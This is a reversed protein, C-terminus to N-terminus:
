SDLAARRSGNSGAHAKHPPAIIEQGPECTAEYLKRLSQVAAGDVEPLRGGEFVLWSVLARKPLSSRDLQALIQEAPFEFLLQVGAMVTELKLAFDGGPREMDAIAVSLDDWVSGIEM